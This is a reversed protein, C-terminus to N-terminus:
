RSNKLLSTAISGLTWNLVLSGQHTTRDHLADAQEWAHMWPLACNAIEPDEPSTQVYRDAIRVMPNAFDSVPELTAKYTKEAKSDEVSSSTGQAYKSQHDM